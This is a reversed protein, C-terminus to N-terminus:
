SPPPPPLAEIMNAMEFRDKLLELEGEKIFAKGEERCEEAKLKCENQL